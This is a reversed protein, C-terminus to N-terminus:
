FARPRQRDITLSRPEDTARSRPCAQVSQILFHHRNGNVVVQAALGSEDVFTLPNGRVYAYLNVGGAEGIPDRNLWRAHAPDYARYLTFDLGSVAHTFYGAYGIDSIATGSVTTRNRYPDYAEL